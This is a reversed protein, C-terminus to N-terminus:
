NAQYNLAWCVVKDTTSVILDVKDGRVSLAVGHIDSDAKFDGLWTGRDSILCVSDGSDVFAWYTEGSQTTVGSIPEVQNSFLQSTLPVTWRTRFDKSYSVADWQDAASRATSVLAEDRGTITAIASLEGTVNGVLVEGGVLDILEGNILGVARSDFIGTEKAVTKAYQQARGTRPDFKYVGHHDNFSLLFSVGDGAPVCDLIGDHVEDLKPFSSVLNMDVDFFHVQVGQREFAAILPRDSRGIRTLSVAQDQPIDLKKREIVQGRDNLLNLTQFGDFIALQAEGFLNQPLVLINGPGAFSEQTWKKNPALKIETDKVPTRRKQTKAPVASDGMLLDDASVRRLSSDYDDLHKLYGDLMEQSIDEGGALRNLVTKLEDSWDQDKMSRVFQVKANRDFVLLMPFENLQLQNSAAGSDLLLSIGLREKSRLVDIPRPVEISVPSLLSPPYAVSFKFDRYGSQKLQHLQDILPIWDQHGIWAVTTIAGRLDDAGFLEGNRDTLQIDRITKGLYDSPLTQALEIFKRVTRAGAQAKVAFDAANFARDVEADPFTAYLRVEEVDRSALLRSQLLANPYEIQRILSSAKDVYIKTDEGIGICYCDATNLKQDPLRTKTAASDFWPSQVDRSLLAVAPPLLVRQDGREPNVVPFDQSGSVFSRAIDDSLLRGIPPGNRGEAPIVLQQRGFNKTDVDFIFCTLLRGDCVVKSEFLEGRYAGLSRDWATSFNMVERKPLNQSRYDLHIKGADSYTRATAYVDRMAAFIQEATPGQPQANRAGIGADTRNASNPETSDFNGLFGTVPRKHQTGVAVSVEKASNSVLLASANATSKLVDKSNSLASAASDGIRQSKEGIKAVINEAIENKTASDRTVYYIVGGILLIAGVRFLLHLFGNRRKRRRRRRAM